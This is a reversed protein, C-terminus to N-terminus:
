VEDVSSNPDDIPIIIIMDPDVHTDGYQESEDLCHILTEDLDFILTKKRFVKSEVNYRPPPIYM